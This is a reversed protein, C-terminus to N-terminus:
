IDACYLQSSSWSRCMVSSLLQLDFVSSALTGLSSVFVLIPNSHANLSRAAGPQRIAAAEEDGTRVEVITDLVTDLVRASQAATMEYEKSLIQVLDAKTVTEKDAGSSNSSWRQTAPLVRVLPSPAPGSCLMSRAALNLPIARLSSLM